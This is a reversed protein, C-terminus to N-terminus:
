FFVLGLVNFVYVITCLVYLMLHNKSVGSTTPQHQSGRLPGEVAQRLIPVLLNYVYTVYTQVSNAERQNVEAVLVAIASENRKLATEIGWYFEIIENSTAYHRLAIFLAAFGYLLRDVYHLHDAAIADIVEFLKGHSNGPFMNKQIVDLKTTFDPNANNWDPGLQVTLHHVRDRYQELGDPTTTKVFSCVLGDSAHSIKTESATSFFPSEVVNLISLM